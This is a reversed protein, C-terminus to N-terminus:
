GGKGEAEKKARLERAAGRLFQFSILGTIGVIATCLLIGSATDFKYQKLIISNMACFTGLGFVGRIFYGRVYKTAVSGIQVGIAAGVLMIVAAILECRGKITYTFAGFSASILVEFLDTGVAIHTPTGILYILSPVRVLGGGIGLFGALIGTFLGVIAPLWFSCRIGAHKFTVVPPIPIKHLYYAWRIASETKELKAGSRELRRRKMIDYFVTITIMALIVVYTWRVVGGVFGIRELYMVLRSAIEIGVITGVLMSLGIAWDVNGFKAHRITSVISKGAIHAMDTGIAYAMPFGFINLGPTILWAGGLGYFGGMVGVGFGLLILVWGSFDVGSVPMYLAFADKPILLLSLCFLMPFLVIRFSRMM